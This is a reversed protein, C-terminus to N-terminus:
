ARPSGSGTSAAAGSAQVDTAFIDHRLGLIDQIVSAASKTQYPNTESCFILGDLAEPAVGAQRLCRRGAEVGLSIPDEDPGTVTREPASSLQRHRQTLRLMDYGTRLM